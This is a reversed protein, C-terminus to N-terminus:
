MMSNVARCSRRIEGQKGTLVDIRGMKVIAKQYKKLWKAYNFALEMVQNRTRPDNILAQDSPLIAKGHMLNMYFLNNLATMGFSAAPNISVMLDELGPTGPPPCQTRLRLAYMPDLLPSLSVNYLSSAILICHVRGISHTGMLVVLDDQNMGKRGYIELMHDLDLIPFPLNGDVDSTRSALGDRRGGPVRYSPFGLLSSADRAAYALIDACSVTEPCEAELRAKAEDIVEFGRLGINGPSIKEITEGSPTSDLLISADCGNVFCDHFILRILAPGITSDQFVAARVTNYVIYEAQPCSRRYFDAHLGHGNSSRATVLHLVFSITLVAVFFKTGMDM